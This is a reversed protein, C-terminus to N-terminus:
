VKVRCISACELLVDGHTLVVADLVSEVEVFARRRGIALDGKRELHEADQAYDAACREHRHERQEDDAHHHGQLLAGDDLLQGGGGEDDEDGVRHEHRNQGGHEDDQADSQQAVFPTARGLDGLDHDDDEDEHDEAVHHQAAERGFRM